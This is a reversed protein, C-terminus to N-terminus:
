KAPLQLAERTHALAAIVAPNKVADLAPALLALAANAATRDRAALSQPEGTVYDFAPPAPWEALLKLADVRLTEPMDERAAFDAIAAANTSQGLRFNANLVRGMLAEDPVPRAILAALQPTGPFQREDHIARAAELVLAPEEDQLFTAIEPRFLQRMALLVGMRVAPANNQSAQQIAALDRSGVLADVYAHRLYPDHDGAEHLMLLLQPIAERNGLKALAQAAFMSVREDPNRLMKILGDFAPAFKLEGLVRAAQARVELDDDELLPLLPKFTEGNVGPPKEGAHRWIIGLGWIAHLRAVSAEPGGNPSLAVDLLTSEGDPAAALRWEAALRVRQDPHKLLGRLEISVKQKLEGGLLREVAEVQPDPVSNAPSLVYLTEREKGGEADEDHTVFALRAAPRFALERVAAGSCAEQQDLLLFGGGNARMSWFLIARRAPNGVFFHDDYRDGFGTGPYHAVGWSGAPVGAVPPLVWAAQGDFRPAWLKEAMWPVRAPALASRPWGTRWGYDGDEVLYLWRGQDDQGSGSDAAFLNGLNDFALGHLDRLGRCVIEAQSGDPESRMVAGEAPVEMTEGGGPLSRLANPNTCFFYLRGDPGPTVARVDRSVFPFRVGFLGALDELQQAALRDGAAAAPVAGTKGMELAVDQRTVQFEPRTKFPGADVAPEEAAHLTLGCATLLCLGRISRAFAFFM